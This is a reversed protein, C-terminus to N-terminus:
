VNKKRNKLNEYEEKLSRIQKKINERENLDPLIDDLNAKGVPGLYDNKIKDKERYTLYYYAKSNRYLINIHGKRLSLLKERLSEIEKKIQKQRTNIQKRENNM